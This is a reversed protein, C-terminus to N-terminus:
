IKEYDKNLNVDIIKNQLSDKNEQLLDENENIVENELEQKLKKRNYVTDPDIIKRNQKPLPIRGNYLKM